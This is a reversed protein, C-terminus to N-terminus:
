RGSLTHSNRSYAAKVQTADTTADTMLVFVGPVIAGAPVTFLEITGDTGDTGYGTLHVDGAGGVWIGVMYQPDLTVNGGGLTITQYDTPIAATHPLGM